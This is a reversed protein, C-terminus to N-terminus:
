FTFILSIVAEDPLFFAKGGEDTIKGCWPCAYVVYKRYGGWAGLGFEINWHKHVPLSYGAAIVAGFADGAENDPVWPLFKLGGNDYEQYQARAAVWWGSYVNWPWWRAGLSYTQQRAKIEDQQRAADDGGTRWSWANVRAAAEISWHQSVGYQFSLNPTVFYMWDVANTGVAFKQARAPLCCCLAAMLILIYRKMTFAKHFFPQM